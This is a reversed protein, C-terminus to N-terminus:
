IMPYRTRMKGKKIKELRSRWLKKELSPLHDVYLIGEIHDYEHQIMRATIGAFTKTHEKFERDLYKITIEWPRKINASLGPISLCGEEDEWLKDTYSMIVANIFCEKIGNDKEFYQEREDESMNEYTSLSDVIFVRVPQNVQPAALGCGNANYLTEWMNDILKNLEPHDENIYDGKKRLIAAGYGVIPLIM